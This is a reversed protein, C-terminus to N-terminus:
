KEHDYACRGVLINTCKEYKWCWKAGNGDLADNGTDCKENNGDNNNNEAKYM